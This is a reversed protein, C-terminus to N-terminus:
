DADSPIDRDLVTKRGDARANAIAEDCVRRVIDSLPDLVRDSTNMGSRARVYDKLRSAIILVAQDASSKPAAEPQSRVVRRQPAREAGGSAAPPETERTQPATKEVAWAERHNAVPLHIEWCDVGCFAMGTRKRNCTSVSCVWYVAGLEIPEKCANCPRWVRDPQSQM